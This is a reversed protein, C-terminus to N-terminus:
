CVPCCTRLPVYIRSYSLSASTPGLLTRTHLISLAATDFMLGRFLFTVELRFHIVDRISGVMYIHMDGLTTDLGGTSANSSYVIM